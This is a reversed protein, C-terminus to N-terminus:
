QGLNRLLTNNSENDKMAETTETIVSYIMREPMQHGEAVYGSGCANALDQAVQATAETMIDSRLLEGVGEYNVSIKVKSM